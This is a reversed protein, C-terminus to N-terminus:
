RRDAGAPTGGRRGRWRLGVAIVAAVILGRVGWTVAEGSRVDSKVPLADLTAMTRDAFAGIHPSAIGQFTVMYMADRSFVEADIEQLRAAGDVWEREFRAVEVEHVRSLVPPAFVDVPGSAKEMEARLHQAHAELAEQPLEPAEPHKVVTVYVQWEDFRLRLARMPPMGGRAMEDRLDADDATCTAPDLEGKHTLDCAQASTADLQLCLHGDPDCVGLAFAPRALLLVTLSAVAPAAIRTV